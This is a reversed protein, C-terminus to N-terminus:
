IVRNLYRQLAKTTNTGWDGDATAGVKRQLAKTTAKGIRGDATVNLKRQLAKIDWATWTGKVPLKLWKELTRITAVGMIGDVKLDDGGQADKDLYRKLATATKPGWVGDATTGVKKQLATITQKGWYGDVPVKLWQQTAKATSPGMIGDAKVGIASQLAKITSTSLSDPAFWEAGAKAPVKPVLIGTSSKKMGMMVSPDCPGPDWHSNEPVESHGFWGSKNLWRWENRSSGNNAEAYSSPPRGSAWVRDVGLSDLWNARAALIAKGAETVDKTYGNPMAVVETQINYRGQRNTQVGGSRNALARAARNAPVMQVAQGTIPHLTLHAETGQSILFRAAQLASWSYPTVMVHETARSPGGIMSGGDRSSPLTAAGPMWNGM